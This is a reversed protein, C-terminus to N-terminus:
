GRTVVGRLKCSDYRRLKNFRIMNQVDRVYLGRRSSYNKLGDAMIKSDSTRQRLKRFLRYAPQSNLILSYERVAALLSKFSKVRHTKGEERREPVLGDDGDDWTWIGFLNNADRAFRSGGWASEIASQALILSVPVPKIKRLLIDAHRSKYKKTLALVQQISTKDLNHRWDDSNKDFFVKKANPYKSLIDLLVGREVLIEQRAILAIPLLSHFFIRKRRAVPTLDAFDAPFHDILVPRLMEGPDIELLNFRRLTKILTAASNVEVTECQLEACVLKIAMEPEIRWFRPVAWLIIVFLLAACGGILLGRVTQRTSPPPLPDSGGAHTM